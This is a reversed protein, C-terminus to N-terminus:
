PRSDVGAMACHSAFTHRLDHWRCVVITATACARQLAAYLTTAKVPEGWRREASTRQFIRDRRWVGRM